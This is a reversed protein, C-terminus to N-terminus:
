KHDQANEDLISEIVKLVDMDEKKYYAGNVSFTNNAFIGIGLDPSNSPDGFIIQYRVMLKKFGRVEKAGELSDFIRKKQNSNIESSQDNDMNYIVVKELSSYADLSLNRDGFYKYENCSCLMFGSYLMLLMLRPIIVKM